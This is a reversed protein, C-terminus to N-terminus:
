YEESLIVATHDDIYTIILLDRHRITQRNYVIDGEVEHQILPTRCHENLLQGVTIGSAELHEFARETVMLKGPPFAPSVTLEGVVRIM